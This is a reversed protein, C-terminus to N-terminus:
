TPCRDTMFHKQKWPKIKGGRPSPRL